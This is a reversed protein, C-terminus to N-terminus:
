ERMGIEDLFQEIGEPRGPDRFYTRMADWNRMHCREINAQLERIKEVTIRGEDIRKEVIKLLKRERRNLARHRDTLTKPLMRWCKRCIIDEDPEYKDAPATRNCRPNICSIRGTM